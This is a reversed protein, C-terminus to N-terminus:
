ASAAGKIEAIIGDFLEFYDRELDAASLSFAATARPLSLERAAALGEKQFGAYLDAATILDGANRMGYDAVWLCYILRERLAHPVPAGAAVMQEIVEHGAELLWTENDDEIM